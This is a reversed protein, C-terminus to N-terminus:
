EAVTTLVNMSSDCVCDLCEETILNHTNNTPQTHSVGRNEIGNVTKGNKFVILFCVKTKIPINQGELIYKKLSIWAKVSKCDLHSSVIAFCIRHPIDNIMLQNADKEILLVNHM